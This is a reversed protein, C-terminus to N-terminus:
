PEPNLRLTIPPPGLAFIAARNLGPVRAPPTEGLAVLEQPSAILMRGGAVLLNGGTIGRPLLEIAKKLRVSTQDFQYIKERTPWWVCDGALIGRGYGLTEDGDPWVHTVRGQEPPKLGIWYIRNGSAILNEGSVGLLHVVDDVEPGSQWLIQGTAADIALLSRSDAPAVLLTGRDYLCPTLDRCTYPGPKGLDGKVARPYLTLWQLQGDRTNLAAVGGLNTNLYLTDRHLTVLNYTIEPISGRSPTDAGCVFQRWRLQGSEADFCAVYAQPQVESRRMAVYVNAADAVPAGEFAWGPQPSTKWVLRGQAALDLCVLYGDGAANPGERPRSTVTSGMKAYLRDGSVTLSFRRVGLGEILYPTDAAEGPIEDRFIVASPQGWAPRGTQLDLALIERNQRNVFVRGGAVVPFSALPDRADEAVRAPPRFQGWVPKADENAMRLPVRWVVGGVGSAKPAIKNRTPSGALTTWDDSSLKRPWRASEAALASLAEVYSTEHGAFWGRANRHLQALQGLEDRARDQSGELISVLVLRARVAALDLDTDSVGPWTRPAGAPQPHPVIREWFSRAAAYDGSELAMEGLADLANDAWSSALAQDLLELLRRPDRAAVGDEYLRKAQPDIRRRYIALAEPPLSLLQLQCCARVPVYRSETVGVLKAGASEMLRVLAGIGENWQKDALYAKAQDLAKLVSGDARDFQVTGSLEYRFDPLSTGLQAVAVIPSSGIALLIALRRLVNCHAFVRQVVGNSSFAEGGWEETYLWRPTTLFPAQRVVASTPSYPIDETANRSVLPSGQKEAQWPPYYTGCAPNTQKSNSTPPQAM